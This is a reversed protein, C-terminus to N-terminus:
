LIGFYVLISSLIIAIFMGATIFPMAPYFKKKESKMFLYTLGATAGAIVLLAPILGWTKLIVGATIIPFIVDGGGLIAINVKISQGKEKTKSKKEQAKM